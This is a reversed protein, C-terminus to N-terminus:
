LMYVCQSAYEGATVCRGSCRRQSAPQVHTLAGPNAGEGLHVAVLLPHAGARAVEAARGLTDDTVAQLLEHLHKGTM